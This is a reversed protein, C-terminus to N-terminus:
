SACALPRRTGRAIRARTASVAGSEPPTPPDESLMVRIAYIERKHVEGADDVLNIEFTTEGPRVARFEFAQRVPRAPSTGNYTSRDAMYQVPPGPRASVKWRTGVNRDVQFEIVFVQGVRAKLDHTRSTTM